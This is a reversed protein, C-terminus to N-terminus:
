LKQMEAVDRASKKTQKVYVADDEDTILRMENLPKAMRHDIIKRRTRVTLREPHTHTHYHYYKHTHTRTELVFLYAIKENYCISYRPQLVPCSNSVCQLDHLHSFLSLIYVEGEIITLFITTHADNYYYSHTSIHAGHM